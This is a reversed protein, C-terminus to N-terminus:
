AAVQTLFGDVSSQLRKAADALEGTAGLVDTASTNASAIATTVAAINGSVTSTGDAASAVNRAIERTATTQEEVTGAIVSTVRNIEDMTAAIAAIAEVAEKTSGQIGAVQAAIDETAKATQGALNKVESAVVAFGKGAEGARAAEITANLALLNTQAAIARILEVVNGIREAADALGAVGANSRTALGTADKVVTNAQAVQRAIEGVSAGLQEAAAAVSQVNGAAQDSAGAAAAAQSSAQGAVGSLERATTGLRKMSGDVAGLVTGISARFDAILADVRAQREGRAAQEARAKDALSAREAANARFVNVARAMEGIEDKRDVDIAVSLPRSDAIDLMATRLATLPRSIGRAILIALGGLVLLLALAIAGAQYINARLEAVLDDAFVGAVVIINWPRYLKGFNTKGVPVDTGPRAWMFQTLSKGHADIDRKMDRSFLYGHRDKQDIMSKGINGKSGGTVLMFLDSDNRYVIFYDNNGYRMGEIVTLARKLADDQSMAGSDALKRHADFVGTASDVLAELERARADTLRQNQLYVLLGTLLACGFAFLGVLAYLRGAIRFQMECDGRLVAMPGRRRSVM